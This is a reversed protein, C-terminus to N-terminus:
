RGEVALFVDLAQRTAAVDHVRLVDAGHAAAALAAGVSGFVRESPDSVGTLRGIFSKRSAGIVVRHGLAALRPVARILALNDLPAKGFGLGPDVLMRDSRIGQEAGHELRQALFREVEGVLDDYTTDVQMTRPTGRMHMLVVQVGGAACLAAMEPDGFATVDNVLTAGAEIAAAAVAAKSTDISIGVAPCAARLGAIVPVVRAIEEAADIPRAGPRTSEGGVDLWDAGEEVLRRGHAVAREPDVFRGGDSFSDPTVNVIGM